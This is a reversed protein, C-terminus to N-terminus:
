MPRAMVSKKTLGRFIKICPEQNQFKRKKEEEIQAIIYSYFLLLLLLSAASRVQRKRSPSM